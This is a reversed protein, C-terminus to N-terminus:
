YFLHRFLYAHPSQELLLSACLTVQDILIDNILCLFRLRSIATELDIAANIYWIISTASDHTNSTVAVSKETLRDLRAIPLSRKGGGVLCLGGHETEEANGEWCREDCREVDEREIVRTEHAIQLRFLCTERAYKYAFSLRMCEAAPVNLYFPLSRLDIHCISHAQLPLSLLREIERLECILRRRSCNDRHPVLFLVHISLSGQCTMKVITKHIAVWGM